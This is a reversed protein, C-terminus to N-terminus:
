VVAINMHMSMSSCALFIYRIQISLDVCEHRRFIRSLNKPSRMVQGRDDPFGQYFVKVFTLPVTRSNKLGIKHTMHKYLIDRAILDNYIYIVHVIQRFYVRRLAKTKVKRHLLLLASIKPCPSQASTLLVLVTSAVLPVGHLAAPVRPHLM